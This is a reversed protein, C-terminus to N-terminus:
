FSGGNPYIMMNGREFMCVIIGQHLLEPETTLLPAGMCVESCERMTIKHPMDGHIDVTVHIFRLFHRLRYAYKCRALTKNWADAIGDCTTVRDHGDVQREFVVRMGRLDMSFVDGWTM